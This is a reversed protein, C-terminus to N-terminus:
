DAIITNVVVFFQRFRSTKRLLYLRCVFKFIVDFYFHKPYYFSRFSFCHQSKPKQLKESQVSYKQLKPFTWEHKEKREPSTKIGGTKNNVSQKKKKKAGPSAEICQIGKRSWGCKYHSWFSRSCCRTPQVRGTVTM